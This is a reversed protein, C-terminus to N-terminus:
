DTMRESIIPKLKIRLRHWRVRLNVDSINLLAATEKPSMEKEIICEFLLRDKENMESKLRTLYLQYKEEQSEIEQLRVFEDGKEFIPTSSYEFDGLSITKIRHAYLRSYELSKIKAAEFLWCLIQKESDYHMLERKQWLLSFVEQTIDEADQIHFGRQVVIYRLIIRYYSRYIHDFSHETM